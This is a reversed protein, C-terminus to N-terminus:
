FPLNTWYVNSGSRYIIKPEFLESEDQFFVSIKYPNGKEYQDCAEHIISPMSKDQNLMGDFIERVGQKVHIELTEVGYVDSEFRKLVEAEEIDILTLKLSLTDVVKVIM